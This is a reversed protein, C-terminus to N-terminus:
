NIPNVDVKIVIKSNAKAAKQPKIALSGDSTRCTLSTIRDDRASCKSECVEDNWGELEELYDYPNNMYYDPKAVQYTFSYKVINGRDYYAKGTLMKPIATDSLNRNDLKILNRVEEFACEAKNPSLIKDGMRPGIFISRCFGSKKTIDTWGQEAAQTIPNALTLLSLAILSSMVKIM